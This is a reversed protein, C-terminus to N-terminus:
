PRSAAACARPISSRCCAIARRPTTTATCGPSRWSTRFSGCSCCAPSRGARHSRAARRHRDLGHAASHRRRRRRRGHEAALPTKLPTYVVVYLLGVRSAWRPPSRLQRASAALRRRRRALRAVAVIAEGSTVRGAACRAPPPAACAPTSAANSGSTPSARAPRSWRRAPRAGAACDCVDLGQPAALHAVAAAVFLELVVIRPKTLELYDALRVCRRCRCGDLRRDLPRAEAVIRTTNLRSM